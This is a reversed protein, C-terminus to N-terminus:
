EPQEDTEMEEGMLRLTETGIERVRVWDDEEDLQEPEHALRGLLWENDLALRSLEPYPDTREEHLHRGIDTDERKTWGLIFYRALERAAHTQRQGPGAPGAELWALRVGERVAPRGLADSRWAIVVTATECESGRVAWAEHWGTRTAEFNAETREGSEADTRVWATIGREGNRLLLMDVM